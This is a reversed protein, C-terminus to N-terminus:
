YCTHRKMQLHLAFRLINGAFVVRAAGVIIPGIEPDISSGSEDLIDIMYVLLNSLGSLSTFVFLMGVCSYPKFFAKSFLRSITFKWTQDTNQNKKLEHKSQIENFEESIDYNGGRFFKLSKKAAESKDNEVLWYPTEPLLFLLFTSLIPPIILLHATIRWTFFYSIIWVFLMGSALMFPPLTALSGRLNPHVTESIYPMISASYSM